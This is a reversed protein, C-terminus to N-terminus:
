RGSVSPPNATSPLGSVNRRYELSAPQVAAPAIGDKADDILLPVLERTAGDGVPCGLEVKGILGQDITGIGM